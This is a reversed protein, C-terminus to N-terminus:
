RSPALRWGLSLNIEPRRERIEVAERIARRASRVEFALIRVRIFIVDTSKIRENRHKSAFHEGLPKGAVHHRADFHHEEFRERPTRCSEGVYRDMCLACTLMYLIGAVDCLHTPLGGLCSICPSLPRGRRKEQKRKEREQTISCGAPRLASTVLTDKLNQTHECVINVPFGSRQVLKKTKRQIDENRFPLKLVAANEQMYPM